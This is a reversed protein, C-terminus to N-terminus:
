TKKAPFLHWTIKQAGLSIFSCLLLASIVTSELSLHVSATRSESAPLKFNVLGMRPGGPILLDLCVKITM